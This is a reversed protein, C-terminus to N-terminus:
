QKAEARVAFDELARLRRILINKADSVDIDRMGIMQQAGELVGIAQELRKIAALRQKLTPERM